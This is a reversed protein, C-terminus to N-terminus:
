IIAPAVGAEGAYVKINLKRLSRMESGFKSFKQKVSILIVKSGLLKESNSKAIDSHQVTM